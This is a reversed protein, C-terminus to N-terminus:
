RHLKKYTFNQFYSFFNEYFAMFKAVFIVDTAVIVFHFEVVFLQRLRIFENEEWKKLAKSEKKWELTTTEYICM